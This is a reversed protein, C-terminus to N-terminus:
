DNWQINLFTIMLVKRLNRTATNTSANLKSYVLVLEFNLILVQIADNTWWYKALTKSTNDM